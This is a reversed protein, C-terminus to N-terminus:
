FLFILVTFISILISNTINTGKCEYSYQKGDIDQFKHLDSNGSYKKGLYYCGKDTGSQFLCCSNMISSYDTCHKKKSPVTRGCTQLKLEIEPQSPRYPTFEYEKYTKENVGCDINTDLSNLNTKNLDIITCRKEKYCCLHTANSQAFCDFRSITAEGEEEEQTDLPCECNVFTILAIVLGCTIIKNM